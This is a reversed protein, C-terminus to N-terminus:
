SFASAGAGVEVPEPADTSAGEPPATGAAATKEAAIKDAEEKAAAEQAGRLHTLRAPYPQDGPYM